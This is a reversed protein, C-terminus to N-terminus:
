EGEQLDLLCSYDSDMYFRKKKSPIIKINYGDDIAKIGVSKKGDEKMKTITSIPIYLVKGKEYLFLVVGVRVGKIGVKEKLLDYQTINDFPISAGKHTKCEIYFINPYSYCIFDSINKVGYYGSVTDYIRDISSNLVSRKWDSRFKDEFKKGYNQSM